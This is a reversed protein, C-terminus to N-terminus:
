KRKRYWSFRNNYKRNLTKLENILSLMEVYTDYNKSYLCIGGINYDKILTELEQIIDCFWFETM